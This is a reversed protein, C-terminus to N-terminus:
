PRLGAPQPVGPNKTACRKPSSKPNEDPTSNTSLQLYAPGRGQTFVKDWDVVAEKCEAFGFADLGRMIEHVNRGTAEWDAALWYKTKELYLRALNTNGARNELTALRAYPLWDGRSSSSNWAPVTRLLAMRAAATDSSLYTRYYEDRALRLAEATATAREHENGHRSHEVYWGIAVGFLLSLASAILTKM